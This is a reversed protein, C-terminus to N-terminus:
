TAMSCHVSNSRSIKSLNLGVNALLNNQSIGENDFGERKIMRRRFDKPKCVATNSIIIVKLFLGTSAQRVGLLAMLVRISHHRRLSPNPVIAKKTFINIVGAVADSGYLTSQAGKLIEIRECEGVMIMNLDFTAGIFSPDYAPMGDILILTNGTSAGRLYVEQNSGNPSQAGVIMLGVQRTLLEGLTQSQYKQLLSDPLATVVKGTQSQKQTFKNATITVEELTMEKQAFVGQAIGCLMALGVSKFVQKM